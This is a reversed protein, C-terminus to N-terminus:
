KGATFRTRLADLITSFELPPGDRGSGSFFVAAIYRGWRAAVHSPPVAAVGYYMMRDAGSTPPRVPGGMSMSVGYRDLVLDADKEDPMRAITVYYAYGSPRYVWITREVDIAETKGPLRRWSEDFVPEAIPYVSFGL